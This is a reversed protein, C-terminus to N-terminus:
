IAILLGERNGSELAFDVGLGMAWWPEHLSYGLMGFQYYGWRQYQSDKWWDGEWKGGAGARPRERAVRKAEAKRRAETKGIEKAARKSEAKREQAELTYTPQNESGPQKNQLRFWYQLKRGEKRPLLRYPEQDQRDQLGENEAPLSTPSSEDGSNATSHPRLYISRLLISLVVM